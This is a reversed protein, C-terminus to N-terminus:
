KLLRYLLRRNDNDQVIKYFKDKGIESIQNYYRRNLWSVIQNVINKNKLSESYEFQSIDSLLAEHSLIFLKQM